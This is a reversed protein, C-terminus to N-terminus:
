GLRNVVRLAEERAWNDAELIDGLGPQKINKHRNLVREIVEPISIFELRGKLFEDVSAENAANLVAPMTGAESAARYALALCPFKKFDPKEFKLEKLKFFDIGPLATPLREPYSLAYQIPIRMDTVSLQALIVGDIFEVMSHIIAQPHILIKIKDLEVDFLFMTELVELGKNMLTASDVSIKKGMKWKPHRLVQAISINQLDKKNKERFPGGSATLYINKLREKDQGDLCQWIASQESDIPIIKVKKKGSKNMIISGAMVLAEKNALIITKESEIAKLLPPLGGSGSIALVIEDTRKQGVLEELGDEGMFLKIKPSIKPKLNVAAKQDRVCVFRPHFEKIQQYLIDINSNASLGVISFRDPFQKIVQLTNQGISGTSGLITINKM